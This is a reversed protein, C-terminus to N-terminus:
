RTLLLVGVGTLVGGLVTDAALVTIITENDVVGLFRRALWQFAFRALVGLLILASGIIGLVRSRGDTGKILVPVAVGVGVFAIVVAVLQTVPM